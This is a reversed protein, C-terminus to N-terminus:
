SNETTMYLHSLQFMFFFSHLLISAKLSHQQLLSNLVKFLLSILGTLGSPFWGKINRPLVSASAAVRISQGGSTILQSMLFSGLAPFFRPYSSFSSVSTLITSHPWWSLPGSNSCVRPSPSPFPLRTHQLGHPQLSDSM